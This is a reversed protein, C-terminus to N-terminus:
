GISSARPRHARKRRRRTRCSSCSSTARRSCIRAPSGPRLGRRRRRARRSPSRRPARIAPCRLGFPVRWGRSRSASRASASSAWGGAGVADARGVGPGRARGAGLSARGARPARAAAPARARDHRRHVHEAIARARIGRASTLVVSSALLEPFMLSGVGVAPSQVWRLRTARRFCTATSSRRSRSTPRRCCVGSPTAIGPKSSRTSRSVRARLRDVFRQPM